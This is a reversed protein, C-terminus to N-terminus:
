MAERLPDQIPNRRIGFPGIAMFQLGAFHITLGLLGHEHWASFFRPTYSSDIRQLNIYGVLRFRSSWHRSLM